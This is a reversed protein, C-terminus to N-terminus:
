ALIMSAAIVEIVLTLGLLILITARGQQKKHDKSSYEVKSGTMLRRFETGFMSSIIDLGGGAILLLGGELMSLLWFTSSFSFSWVCGVAALVINVVNLVISWRLVELWL